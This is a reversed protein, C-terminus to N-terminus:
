AAGGFRTHKRNRRLNQSFARDGVSADADLKRGHFHVERRGNQKNKEIKRGGIESPERALIEPLSAAIRDTLKVGIGDFELKGLRNTLEKLQRTLGKGCAAVAEAALFCALIGDKESSYGKHSDRALHDANPLAFRSLRKARRYEFRRFCIKRGYVAFRTRCDITSRNADISREFLRM